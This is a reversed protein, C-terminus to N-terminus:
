NDMKTLQNVANNSLEKLRCQNLDVVNIKLHVVSEKSEQQYGENVNGPQFGDKAKDLQFDEKSHSLERQTIRKDEPYDGRVNGPYSIKSGPLDDNVKPPQTRKNLFVDAELHSTRNALQYADSNIQRNVRDM